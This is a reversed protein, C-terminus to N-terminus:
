RPHSNRTADSPGTRAQGARDRASPAAPRAPLGTPLRIPPPIPGGTPVASIGPAGVGKPMEYYVVPIVPFALCSKVRGAVVGPPRHADDRTPPVGTGHDTEFPTARSVGRRHVTSDCRRSTRAPSAPTWPRPRGSARGWRGRARRRDPGRASDPGRGAPQPFLHRHPRTPQGRPSVLPFPGPAPVPTGVRPSARPGVTPGVTCCVTWGGSPAVRRTSAPSSPQPALGRVLLRRTM